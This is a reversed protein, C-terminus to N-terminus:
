YGDFSVLLLTAFIVVFVDEDTVLTAGDFV